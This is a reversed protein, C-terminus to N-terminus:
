RGSTKSKEVLIIRGNWETEDLARIAADAEEDRQLSLFGFGRSDGSRKDRVIRVDRVRGFKSFKRELDKETTLFSFGAVFLNKGPKGLGTSRNRPPSWPRRRPSRHRSHYVLPSRHRPSYRPSRRRHDRRYPSRSRSRDHYDRKHGSSSDRRGVPSRSVSRKRRRHKPSSHHTRPSGTIHKPSYHGDKQECGQLSNHPSASTWRGSPLLQDLSSVAKSLDSREPLSSHNQGCLRPSYSPGSPSQHTYPSREPSVSAQRATSPSISHELPRCPCQQSSHLMDFKGSQSPSMKSFHDNESNSDKDVHQSMPSSLVKEVQCNIAVEEKDECESRDFEHQSKGSFFENEKANQPSSFPRDTDSSDEMEERQNAVMPLAFEKSPASNETKVSVDHHFESTAPSYYDNYPSEANGYRLNAHLSPSGHQEEDNLDVLTKDNMALNTYVCEEAKVDKDAAFNLDLTGVLASGDEKELNSAIEFGKEPSALDM